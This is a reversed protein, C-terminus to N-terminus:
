ASERAEEARIEAMIKDVLKLAAAEKAEDRSTALWSLCVVAPEYLDARNDKLWELLQGDDGGHSTTTRILNLADCSFGRMAEVWDPHIQNVDPHVSMPSRGLCGSRLTVRRPEGGYYRFRQKSIVDINKTAWERIMNQYDLNAQWYPKADGDKEESFHPNDEEFRSIVSNNEPYQFTNELVYKGDVEVWEYGTGFCLCLNNMAHMRTPFLDFFNLMLKKVLADVINM